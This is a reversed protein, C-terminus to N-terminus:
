APLAVGVAVAVAGGFSHGMVVFREGGKRAAMDVAVAVDLACAEFDNPRRYGVRMTAIQHDRALSVGLDHFLGGAPGLLSGLADWCETRRQFNSRSCNSRTSTSSLRSVAISASTGSAWRSPCVSATMALRSPGSCM